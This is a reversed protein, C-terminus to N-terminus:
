KKNIDSFFLRTYKNEGQPRYTTYEDDDKHPDSHGAHSQGKLVPPVAPLSGRANVGLLLLFGLALRSKSLCFILVLVLVRAIVGVLVAEQPAILRRHRRNVLRPSANYQEYFTPLYQSIQLM